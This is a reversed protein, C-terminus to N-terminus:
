VYSDRAATADDKAPLSVSSPCSYCVQGPQYMLQYLLMMLWTRRIVCCRLWTGQNSLREDYKRDSVSGSIM